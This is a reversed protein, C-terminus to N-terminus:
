GYHKPVITSVCYVSLSFTCSRDERKGGMQIQQSNPFDGSHYREHASTPAIQIEATFNPSTLWVARSAHSIYYVGMNQSKQTQM